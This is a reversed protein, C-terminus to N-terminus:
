ILGELGSSNVGVLPMSLRRAPHRGPIMLMLDVLRLILAGFAPVRSLVQCVTMHRWSSPSSATPDLQAPPGWWVYRQTILTPHRGIHLGVLALTFADRAGKRHSGAVAKQRNSISVFRDHAAVVLWLLQCPALKSFSRDGLPRRHFPKTMGEETAPGAPTAGVNKKAQLGPTPVGVATGNRRSCRSSCYAWRAVSDARAPKLSITLERHRPKEPLVGMRRAICASFRLIRSSQERAAMCASRRGSSPAAFM